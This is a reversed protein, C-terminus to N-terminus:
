ATESQRQSESWSICGEEFRSVVGISEFIHEIADRFDKNTWREFKMQYAGIMDARLVDDPYNESVHWHSHMLKNRIAASRSLRSKVQEFEDALVNPYHARITAEIVQLRARNSELELFVTEFEPRSDLRRGKLEGSEDVVRTWRTVLSTFLRLVRWELQAWASCVNALGAACKPRQELIFVGSTTKSESLEFPQPM